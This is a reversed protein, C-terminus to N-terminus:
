QAELGLEREQNKPIEPIDWDEPDDNPGEVYHAVLQLLVDAHCPEDIPCWCALNKGRLPTLLEIFGDFDRHSMLKMHRLYVNVASRRNATCHLSHHVPNGWKTPRGVYVTNEPM